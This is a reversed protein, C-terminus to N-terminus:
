FTVSLHSLDFSDFILGDRFIPFGALEKRMVRFNKPIGEHIELMEMRNKNQFFILSPNSGYDYMGNFISSHCPNLFKNSQFLQNFDNFNGFSYMLINKVSHPILDCTSVTSYLNNFPNNFPYGDSSLLLIKLNKQFSLLKVSLKNGVSIYSVSCQVNENEITCGHIQKNISYFVIGYLINSKFMFDSSLDSIGENNMSLCISKVFNKKHYDFIDISIGCKSNQKHVVTFILFIQQKQNKIIKSKGMKIKTPFSKVNQIHKFSQNEYQFLKLNKMTKDAFIILNHLNSISHIKFKVTDSFKNVKLNKMRKLKQQYNEKEFKLFYNTKEKEFFSFIFSDFHILHPSKGNFSLKENLSEGTKRGTFIKFQVPDINISFRIGNPLPQKSYTELIDIFTRQHHPEFILLPYTSNKFKGYNVSQLVRLNESPDHARGQPLNLVSFRDYGEENSDSNLAKFPHNIWVSKWRRWKKKLCEIPKGGGDLIFEVNKLKKTKKYFSDITKTWKQFMKDEPSCSIDIEPKFCLAIYIKEQSKKEDLFKILDSSTNYNVNKLAPQDHSLVFCSNETERWRSCYEFEFYFDVKFWTTGKKM